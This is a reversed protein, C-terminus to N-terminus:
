PSVFVRGDPGTRGTVTSRSSLNMVRVREGAGARSLSRGEAVIRLGAQEYILPVIQNREIVAPPGIDALRLPRGAYVAVRTEKGIVDAPLAAVGAIDGPKVVIDQSAIVSNAPITRAALIVDAATAAPAALAIALVALGRM